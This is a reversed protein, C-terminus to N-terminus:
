LVKGAPQERFQGMRRSDMETTGPPIAGPLAVGSQCEIGRRFNAPHASFDGVRPDTRAGLDEFDVYGAYGTIVGLANERSRKQKEDEEGLCDVLSVISDRKYITLPFINIPHSLEEPLNHS